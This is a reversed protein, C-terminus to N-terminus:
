HCFLFLRDVRNFEKASSVSGEYNITLSLSRCGGMTRGSEVICEGREPCFYFLGVYEPVIERGGAYGCARRRPYM